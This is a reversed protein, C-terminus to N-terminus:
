KTATPIEPVPLNQVAEPGASFLLALGFFLFAAIIGLVIRTSTDGNNEYFKAKEEKSMDAAKTISKNAYDLYLYNGFFGCVLAPIATLINGMLGMQLMFSVYLGAFNLVLFITGPLFLKRYFCWYTSFFFASINFSIKKDKDNMKEFKNLYYKAKDEGVFAAYEKNLDKKKMALLVDNM